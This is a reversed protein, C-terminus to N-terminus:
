VRSGTLLDALTQLAKRREGIWSLYRKKLEPTLPGNLAKQTQDISLGLTRFALILQVREVSSLPFDRYGSERRVCPLLGKLVMSDLAGVKVGVLDALQGIKLLAESETAPSTELRASQLREELFLFRGLQEEVDVRALLARLAKPDQDKGRVLSMLTRIESLSWKLSRCALILKVQELAQPDFERFGARLRSCDLLGEKEYFRIIPLTTGTLQALIGIRM